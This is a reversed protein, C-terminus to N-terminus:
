ELGFLRRANGGAIRAATGPSLQGLVDRYYAVVMDIIEVREPPGIDTGFLFRDPHREFLDRWEPELTGDAATLSQLEVPQARDYFPNRCSIDCLLNPYAALLPAVTEPPADGIHEWVFTTAPAAELAVVLEEVSAHEIHVNVPVRFAAALAYVQLLVPHDGPNRDGGSPGTPTPAHVIPIEGIGRILGAELKRQLDRVTALTLLAERTVPHRDIHGFPVVTGPHAGSLASADQIGLPAIGEIGAAVVRAYVVEADDAPMLHMHADFLKIAASSTGSGSSSSSGEAGGGGGDGCGGFLVALIMIRNM